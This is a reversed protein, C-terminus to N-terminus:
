ERPGPVRWGGNSWGCTMAQEGKPAYHVTQADFVAGDLSLAGGTSVRLDQFEGSEGPEKSRQLQGNRVAVYAGTAPDWLAHYESYFDGRDNGVIVRWLPSGPIATLNGCISPNEGCATKDVKPKNKPLKPPMPPPTWLSGAAGRAAVDALYAPALIPLAEIAKKRAALDEKLKPHAPDFSDGYCYYARDGDCGLSVGVKPPSTMTLMLALEYDVKSAGGLQQNGWSIIIPGTLADTDGAALVKHVTRDVLDFTFLTDDQRFWV